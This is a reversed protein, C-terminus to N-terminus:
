PTSYLLPMGPGVARVGTAGHTELSTVNTASPGTASGWYILSDNNPNQANDFYSTFVVEPFGDLDLDGIFATVPGVSPLAVSDTPDFGGDNWYVFSDRERIEADDIQNCIVLDLDGDLDLDGTAVASAGITPLTTSTTFGAADQYWIISDQEYTVGDYYQAFVLDVYGNDDFDAAEVAYPGVTALEERDAVLWGAASGWYVYSDADFDFDRRYNSFVIDQYGDADLDAVTNGWAGITPLDLRNTATFGNTAHGWYVASDIGLNSGDWYQSFVIDLMGDGDLDAIEVGTAAQTPLTVRNAISFGSASNYYIYSPNTYSLGDFYHAFVIDQYGDGDLDAVRLDGTGITPLSTRVDTMFGIDGGYYIYSDIYASFGNFANGFVLDPWGDCNLDACYDLGDCNQDFGDYPVEIAHSSVTPDADECDGECPREGDNDADSEDSPVSGDCDNDAGDCIEPATPYIAGDTDVCDTDDAVYGAPPTCSALSDAPSGYTDGDGDLYWLPAIDNDADGDCNSDIGDCVEPAGPFVSADLDDCDSFGAVGDGDADGDTCDPDGDLDLDPFGDVLDGDCDSDQADCFETALPYVTVDDDDCDLCADWGDDDIDLGVDVVGDCNDDAGNTCNEIADPHVAPDTDDCDTGGSAVSGFGDGDLDANAGDVGDCDQDVGDGFPDPAGPYVADDLDDCDTGGSLISAWTDADDDVGDAGDCDNDVLDGFTDTQGPFVTADADDCDTGGSAVSAVTDGDGDVGDAGDCNTDEADGAADSAAPHVLPDSDDCDTGSSALSAFGDGDGDVGDAADCDQDVGDGALDTAGPYVSLELDDCDSGGSPVSAFGDGDVDTGDVGDCNQDFGDGVLDTWMPSIGPNNDDCDGDCSTVGDVDEDQGVFASDTDDCDDCEPSGDNDADVNDSAITGDCDDDIDNCVEQAGPFIAADGDDCDGDCSSHGDGDGDDPRLAVDSDDCDGACPSYGDLDLDWPTLAADTDDCDGACPSLGDADSDEEDAPTVGDCDNDDGDCAEPLDPSRNDDFDDCDEDGSGAVGDPGCLDIGDGDSDLLNAYYDAGDCDGPLESSECCQLGFGLDGGVCAGDLDADVTDLGEDIGNACNNDVCDMVEPADPNVAADTDDCDEVGACFGDGDEDPCAYQRIIESCDQDIGDEPPDEAGPHVSAENDDCDYLTNSREVNGPYGDCDRDIGDVRGAGPCDDCDKDVGDGYEDYAGPYVTADDPVCDQGDPWGDGDFDAPAVDCAALLLSSLIFLNISRM